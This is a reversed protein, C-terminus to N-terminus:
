PWGSRRGAPCRWGPAPEPSEGHCRRAPTPLQWSTGARSRQGSRGEVGVLEVAHIALREAGSGAVARPASLLERALDLKDDEVRSRGVEVGQAKLFTYAMAGGVLVAAAIGVQTKVTAQRSKGYRRDRAMM